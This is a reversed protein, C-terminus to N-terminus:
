GIQISSYDMAVTNLIQSKMSLHAVGDFYNLEKVRV